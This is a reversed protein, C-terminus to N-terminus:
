FTALHENAIEILNRAKKACCVNHIVSLIWKKSEKSQSISKNSSRFQVKLSSKRSFTRILRGSTSGSYWQDFGQLVIHNIVGNFFLLDISREAQLQFKCPKETYRQKEHLSKKPLEAQRPLEMNWVFKSWAMKFNRKRVGNGSVLYFSRKM